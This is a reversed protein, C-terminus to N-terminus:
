VLVPTGAVGAMGFIRRYRAVDCAPGMAMAYNDSLL